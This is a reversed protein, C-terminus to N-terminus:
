SPMEVLTGTRHLRHLTPIITPPACNFRVPDRQQRAQKSPRILCPSPNRPIPVKGFAVASVRAVVVQDLGPVVKKNEGVHRLQDAQSRENDYRRYRDAIANWDARKKQGAFLERDARM